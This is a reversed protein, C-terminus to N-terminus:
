YNGNIYLPYNDENVSIRNNKKYDWVYKKNSSDIVIINDDEKMILNRGYSYNGEIKYITSYVNEEDIFYYKALGKNVTIVYFDSNIFEIDLIFDDKGHDIKQSLDQCINNSLNIELLRNDKGTIKDNTSLYTSLLIKEGNESIAVIGESCHYKKSDVILEADYEVKQTFINYVLYKTTLERMEYKRIKDRREKQLEIRKERSLGQNNLIERYEIGISDIAKRNLERSMIQYLLFVRNTDIFDATFNYHKTSPTVLEELTEADFIQFYGGGFYNNKTTIIYKGNASIKADSTSLEFTSEIGNANILLGKNIREGESYTVFYKDNKTQSILGVYSPLKIEEERKSILDVLKLKSQDIKLLMSNQNLYASKINKTNALIEEYNNKQAFLINVLILLVLLTLKEMDDKIWKNLAKVIQKFVVIFSEKFM